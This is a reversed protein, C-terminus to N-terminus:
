SAVEWGLHKFLGSFGTIFNIMNEEAEQDPSKEFLKKVDQAYYGFSYLNKIVSKLFVLDAIILHTLWDKYILEVTDVSDGHVIRNRLKYFDWGWWGALTHKKNVKGIKKFTKILKTSNFILDIKDAFYDSKGAINPVDYLVEFATSMMVVKSFVSVEDNEVHALRFWELSRLLRIEGAKSKPNNLSPLLKSLAELVKGDVSFLSGGLYLPAVFRVEDIKWGGSLSVTHSGARFAIDATGPIFNQSFMQFRESSPPALSKNDQNVAKLSHPAISAFCLLDRAAKVMLHELPCLVTFNNKDGFSAIMINDQKKGRIDVYCAAYKELYERIPKKKVIDGEYKWFVVDGVRVENVSLWPLVTVQNYTTTMKTM